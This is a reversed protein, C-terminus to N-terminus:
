FASLTSHQWVVQVQLHLPKVIYTIQWMAPLLSVM